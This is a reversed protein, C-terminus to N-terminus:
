IMNEGLSTFSVVRPFTGQTEGGGSSGDRQLEVLGKSASDM